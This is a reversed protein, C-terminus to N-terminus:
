PTPEQGHTRNLAALARDTLAAAHVQPAAVIQEDARRLYEAIVADLVRQRLQPGALDSSAEELAMAAGLLTDRVGAPLDFERAVRTLEAAIYKLRSPLPRRTCPVPRAPVTPDTM